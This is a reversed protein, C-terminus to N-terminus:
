FVAYSISVHSSNLRTSKRDGPTDALKKAIVARSPDGKCTWDLHDCVHQQVSFGVDTALLLIAAWSLARGLPRGGPRITRLHRIAQVLFLFIVCTVAAAYHPMSWILVLFGATGLLFMLLPLRMKRDLFGFPVGPLLLLAGWWFYTSGSRTLKEVTVKWVDPWTNRYDEREWGNY